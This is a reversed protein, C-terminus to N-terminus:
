SDEFAAWDQSAEVSADFIDWAAFFVPLAKGVFKANKAMQGGKSAVQQGAKAEQQAARRAAANKRMRSPRSNNYLRKSYKQVQKKADKALKEGSAMKRGGANKMAEAGRSGVEAAAVKGGAKMADTEVNDGFDMGCAGALKTESWNRAVSMTASTGWGTGAFLLGAATSSTSAGAVGTAAGLSWTAYTGSAIIVGASAGIVAVGVAAGLKIGVLTRGINNVTSIQRANATSVRDFTAQMRTYARQRHERLMTVYKDGAKNGKAAVTDIYTTLYKETLAEIEDHLQRQTRMNVELFGHERGLAMLFTDAVVNSACRHVNMRREMVIISASAWLDDFVDWYNIPGFFTAKESM